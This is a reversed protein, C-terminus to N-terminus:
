WWSPPATQRYRDWSSLITARASQSSSHGHDGPFGSDSGSASKGVSKCSSQFGKELKVATAQDRHWFPAVSSQGEPNSQFFCEDGSGQAVLVFKDMPTAASKACKVTVSGDDERHFWFVEV